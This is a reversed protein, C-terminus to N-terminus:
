KVTMQSLDNEKANLVVNFINARLVKFISKM